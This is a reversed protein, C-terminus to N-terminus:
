SPLVMCIEAVDPDTSVERICRDLDHKAGPKPPLKIDKTTM